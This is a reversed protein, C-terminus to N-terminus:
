NLGDKVRRERQWPCWPCQFRFPGLEVETKKIRMTAIKALLVNTKKKAIEEEDVVKKMEKREEKKEKRRRQIRM